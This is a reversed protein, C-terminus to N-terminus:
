YTHIYNELQEIVRKKDELVNFLLDGISLIAVIKGDEAVLIHRRKTYTIAEMAMEVTDSSQLITIDAHLVDSAKTKNPSLGKYVLGRVLDRESLIGLINEDDGVVLAGINHQVMISVCQAVSVDPNVYAIPHRPQPLISHILNAMDRERRKIAELV